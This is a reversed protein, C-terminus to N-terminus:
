MNLIQNSVVFKELEVSMRYKEVVGTSNKMERWKKQMCKNCLSEDNRWNKWYDDLIPKLKCDDCVSENKISCIM